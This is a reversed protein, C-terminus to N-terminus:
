NEKIFNDLNTASAKARSFVGGLPTNKEHTVMEEESYNKLKASSLCSETVDYIAKEFHVELNDNIYKVLKEKINM